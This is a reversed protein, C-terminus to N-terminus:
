QVTDVAPEAEMDMRNSEAETLDHLTKDAQEAINFVNRCYETFRGIGIMCEHLEERYNAKKDSSNFNPEGLLSVLRSAEDKVYGTLFVKKFDENLYLNHLAKALEIRKNCEIRINNAEEATLTVTKSEESM